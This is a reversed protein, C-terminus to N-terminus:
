ISIEVTASNHDHNNHSKKNQNKNQDANLASKKLFRMTCVCVCVYVCAYEGSCVAGGRQAGGFSQASLDKLNVFDGSACGVGILV